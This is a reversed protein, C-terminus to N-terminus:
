MCTRDASQTVIYQQAPDWAVGQTYHRHERLQHVMKGRRKETTDWVLSRNDISATVLATGDCAWSVDM